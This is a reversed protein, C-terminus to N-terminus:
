SCNKPNKERPFKGGYRSQVSALANASDKGYPTRYHFYTRLHFREAVWRSAIEFLDPPMPTTDLEACAKQFDRNRRLFEWAWRRYSWEEYDPYDKRNMGNPFPSETPEIM